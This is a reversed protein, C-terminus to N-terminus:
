FEFSYQWFIISICIVQYMDKNSLIFVVIVKKM